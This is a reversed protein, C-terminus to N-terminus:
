TLLKQMPIWIGGKILNNKKVKIFIYGRRTEPTGIIKEIWVDAIRYEQFWKQITPILARNIYGISEDGAKIEIALEQKGPNSPYEYVISFNVPKGIEINKNEIINRFGVIELLLECETDVDHFPHIISFGDSLLKAGSYGLLAFPTLVADPKLRIAELYQPFDGRSRPPLRRTFTDLADYYIENVDPFAPHPEFGKEQAKKFDPSDVLYKLNVSEDNLTLEGVLYPMCGPESVSCWALFLKTPEIIHQIFNM